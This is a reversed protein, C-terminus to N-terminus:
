NGAGKTMSQVGMYMYNRQLTIPKDTNNYLAWELPYVPDYAIAGSWWGQDQGAPPNATDAQIYGGGFVGLNKNYASQGFLFSVIGSYIYLAWTGTTPPVGQSTLLAGGNIGFTAQAVRVLSNPPAYVTVIESGAAAIAATQNFQGSVVQENPTALVTQQFQPHGM